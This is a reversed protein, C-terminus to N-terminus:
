QLRASNAACGIATSYTWSLINQTATSQGTGATFGVFALDHRSFAPLRGTISFVAKTVTDTITMSGKDGRYSIHVAFINGSHLNIGSPALNIAPVSPYAGDFYIGTSDPGEGDNNYLDFKIAVSEPIGAYGLGGGSAGVADASDAQLVFTFGDAAPDLLQFTFDTEFHRVPVQASYFASRAESPEGNTLQLLNANVQAGGNLTLGTSNFGNAYNILNCGPRNIVYTASGVPSATGNSVAVAEITETATVSVPRIYLTSARTPTTGDTTYYISAGATTDTITVWQPKSFTGGAPSFSPAATSAINTLSFTAPQAVGSTGATVQFTGGISGATLAPATAIGSGSTIATATNGSGAFSATAGTAPATFIVTTGAVPNSYQDTVAAALPIAYNAGPLASQPTGAAASIQANTAAVIAVTITDTIATDSTDVFTITQSGATFLTFDFTHAGNDSATFTYNPPLVAKPDSSTFHITGTFPTSSAAAPRIRLSKGRGSQLDSSASNGCPGITLVIQSGATFSPVATPECFLLLITPVVAPADSVHITEPISIVVGEAVSPADTVYITEPISIVVAEAVLPADTVHITEPISIVIGEAISPIDTVHIDEALNIVAPPVAATGTGTLAITQPSNAANDAISLAPDFTGAAQPTFTVTFSCTGGPALATTCSNDISYDSSDASVTITPVTLSANGNNTITVTQPASAQGVAISGFNLTTVSLSVTPAKVPSPGNYVDILNTIPNYVYSIHTTPDVLPYFYNSNGTAELVTVTGLPQTAQLDHNFGDYLNITAVGGPACLPIYAQDTSTDLALTAQYNCQQSPSATSSFVPTILQSSLDYQDINGVTDSLYAVSATSDEAVFAPALNIPPGFQVASASPANPDYIEFAETGSESYLIVKGTAQDVALNFDDGYGSGDTNSFITTTTVIQGNSITFLSTNYASSAVQTNAYVYLLNRAPDVALYEATTPDDEVASGINISGSIAAPTGGLPGQITTVQSDHKIMVYATNLRPNVALFATYYAANTVSSNLTLTTVTDTVGDIAYVATNQPAVAYLVNQIPDVAMATAGVQITDLLSDNTTSYVRIYTPFGVYLKKLNSNVVLVTSAGFNTQNINPAPLTDTLTLTAPGCEHCGAPPLVGGVGAVERVLNNNTDAIYLNGNQDLSLGGAQDIESGLAPGDGNYSDILQVSGAINTVNGTTPDVEQVLGGRNTLVYLSM